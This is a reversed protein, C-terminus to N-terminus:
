EEPFAQNPKRLDIRWIRWSKLVGKAYRIMFQHFRKSASHALQPEHIGALWHEWQQIFDMGAGILDRNLRESDKHSEFDDLSKSADLLTRCAAAVLPEHASAPEYSYLTMAMDRLVSGATLVSTKGM